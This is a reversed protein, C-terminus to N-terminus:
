EPRFRVASLWGMGIFLLLVVGQAIAFPPEARTPAMAELASVRLFPQVVGVFVNLLARRHQHGCLGKAVRGGHAACLARPDRRGSAFMWPSAAVRSEPIPGDWERVSGEYPAPTRRGTPPWM